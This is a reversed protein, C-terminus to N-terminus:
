VCHQPTESSVLLFHRLHGRREEGSAESQVRGAKKLEGQNVPNARPAELKNGSLRWLAKTANRTNQEM